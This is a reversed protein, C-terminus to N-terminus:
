PELVLAVEALLRAKPYGSIDVRGVPGVAGTELSGRRSSESRAQMLPRHAVYALGCGM